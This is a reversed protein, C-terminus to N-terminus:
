KAIESVDMDWIGLRKVDRINMLRTSYKYPRSENIKTVYESVLMKAGKGINLDYQDLQSASQVLCNNASIGQLNENM